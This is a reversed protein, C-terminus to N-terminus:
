APIPGREGNLVDTWDGDGSHSCAIMLDYPAFLSYDDQLHLWSYSDRMTKVVINSDLQLAGRRLLPNLDKDHGGRITARCRPYSSM